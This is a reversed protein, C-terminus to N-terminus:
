LPLELNNLCAKRAMYATQAHHQQDYALHHRQCWARLNDDSCNEPMHDLHAITLVIRILKAPPADSFVITDGVKYGAEFICRRAGQFVYGLAHTRWWGTAHNRVGCGPWECCHGARALIRARVDPWDAPYRHLNEPKIPM